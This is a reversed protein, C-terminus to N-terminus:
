EEFVTLVTLSNLLTMGEGQRPCAGSLIWSVNRHKRLFFKKWRQKKEM